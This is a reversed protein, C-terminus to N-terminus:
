SNPKASTHVPYFLQQGEVKFDAIAQQGHSGILWDIFRQGDAARVRMHRAPNVLIVGYPNFLRDDGEVLVAQRGKNGFGIWTGRDTLTYGAMGTATNLTAGMGAGTERYWTGSAKAVDVGAEAWLFLEKQHTGSDDGRSLFPVQAAAIAQLAAVADGKGKIGAPDNQPGVLVFDNYMVDYRRVGWGEAVFTDEAVRSHVLVVDGDGNRANKLAQGTGVAVVRVEIGTERTFRPLIFDFLGANQTSTTSQVVIFREATEGSKVHAMTLGLCVLLGAFWRWATNM